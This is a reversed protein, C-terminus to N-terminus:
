GTGTTESVVFAQFHGSSDTYAGGASCNGVTACSVSEIHASKGQNLAALGPVEEATGWTGDTADVVFAQSYYRAGTLGGASCNGATACSVSEIVGSGRTSTARTGAIKEAPGWTGNTQSVAFGQRYGNAQDLLGVATCNGAAACSVSETFADGGTNLAGAVEKARGWTGGTESVAFAQGHGSSDIYGGGASCNGAAACSVSVVEAHQSGKPLAPIGRVEHATGWSGGTEGVVFGESNGSADIYSGGASCAGAAACSVSEVEANAGANLAKAVTTATGWTGGTESVVFAQYRHGSTGKYTGGASCNGATACSVSVILANDAQSIGPIEEATGWSGGTESVVFARQSSGTYSGGASCNGASACSVSTIRAEGGTNLAAAVTQATGWTGGMESVVFAQQADSSETYFGGASCNGASRCSVSTIGALGGTNLAATGPVEEATGWTGGSAVRAAATARTGAAAVGAGALLGSCVAAVAAVAATVAWRRRAWGRGSVATTGRIM